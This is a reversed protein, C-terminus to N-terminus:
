REGYFKMCGMVEGSFFFWFAYRVGNMGLVCHCSCDDEYMVERHRINEFM